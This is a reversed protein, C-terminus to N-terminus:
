NDKIIVNDHPKIVNNEVEEDNINWVINLKNTDKKPLIKLDDLDLVWDKFIIGKNKSNSDVQSNCSIAFM